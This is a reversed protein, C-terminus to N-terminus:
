IYYSFCKVFFLKCSIQFNHYSGFFLHFFLRTGLRGELFIKKYWHNFIECFCIDFNRKRDMKAQNRSITRNIKDVITPLSTDSRHQKYRVSPISENLKVLKLWASIGNKYGRFTDCFNKNESRKLLIIAEFPNIDTKNLPVLLVAPSIHIDQLHTYKRIHMHM